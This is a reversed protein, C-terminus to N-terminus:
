RKLISQSFYKVPIKVDFKIVDFMYTTRTDEKLLDRFVMERPFLRKDILRYGSFVVDKILM